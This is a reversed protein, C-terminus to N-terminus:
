HIHSSNSNNNSRRVVARAALLADDVTRTVYVHESGVINTAMSILKDSNSIVSRANLNLIIATSGSNNNNNTPQSPSTSKNVTIDDHQNQTATMVLNTSSPQKQLIISRRSQCSWATTSQPCCTLFLFIICCVFDIM